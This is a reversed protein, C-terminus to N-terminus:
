SSAVPALRWRLDLGLRDAMVIWVSLWLLAEAIGAAIDTPYHLGFYLRSVCVLLVWGAGCAFAAVGRLRRWGSSWAIWWLLGVFLTSAAAHGSPFSFTRLTMFDEVLPRERQVIEKISANLFAGGYILVGIAIAAGIRRRVLYWAVAIAAYVSTASPGGLLSAVRLPGNLTVSRHSAFWAVVASDHTSFPGGTAQDVLLLALLFAAAVAVTKAACTGSTPTTVQTRMVSRLLIKRGDRSM